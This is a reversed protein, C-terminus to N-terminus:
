NRVWDLEENKSCHEDWADSTIDWLMKVMFEQEPNMDRPLKDPHLFFRIKRVAKKLKEENATNAMVTSVQLESAEIPKWKSFYPHAPVGFAPPWANHITVVLQDIPRLVQMMPPRLAWNVLINRKIATNVAQGAEENNEAMKAYKAGIPTTQPPPPATPPPPAPPAAGNSNPASPFPQQQQKQQWQQQQQQQWQQQQWQQQRQQQEWQQRKLQEEEARRRQEAAQHEAYRRRQEEEGQRRQHEEFQRRRKEEEQQRLAEEQNRKQMEVKQRALAEQQKVHEGAQQRELEVKRVAEEHAKTAAAQSASVKKPQSNNGNAPPGSAPPTSSPTSASVAPPMVGGYKDGIKELDAREMGRTNIGMGNAIARLEKISRRDSAGASSISGSDSEQKVAVEKPRVNGNSSPVGGSTPASGKHKALSADRASRLTALWSQASQADTTRFQFEDSVNYIKLSFRFDGYVDIYSVEELWKMPIQHLAELEVKGTTPNTVQRQIWLTTEEGPKRGEVLSALIDKWVIRMKSRRQQEIWGNAILNSNPNTPRQFCPKRNKGAAKASPAPSSNRGPAPSSNRGPAPSSNRAPAPSSNRSPAKPASPPPGSAKANRLKCACGVCFHEECWEGEVIEEAGSQRETNKASKAASEDPTGGMALPIQFALKSLKKSIGSFIDSDKETKALTSSDGWSSAHEPFLDQDKLPDRADSGSSPRRRPASSSRARSGNGNRSSEPKRAGAYDRLASVAQYMVPNFEDREVFNASERLMAALKANGSSDTTMM